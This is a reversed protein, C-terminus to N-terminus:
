PRGGRRRRRHRRHDRRLRRRVHRARRRRSAHSTGDRVEVAYGGEALALVAEVPVTLVDEAPSSRSSSTSRAARRCTSDRRRRRGRVPSRRRERERRHEGRRDVGGHGAVRTATPCSSRCQTASPSCHPTPSTSTSTSPRSRTPSPSGPRARRSALGRRRRLRHAATRPDVRDRWPHDRRRRGARPGGPVGERREDHRGDLRRRRHRRVRRRLRAPRADARDGLVDDGDEVSPGLDRWLPRRQPHRHGARRRGGRDRQRPRDGHGAGPAVDADRGSAARAGVRRRLRGHRRAGRQPRPRSAGRHAVNLDVAPTTASATNSDGDRSGVAVGVTAATAVAVATGGAVM